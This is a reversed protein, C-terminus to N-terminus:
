KGLGREIFDEMEQILEPNKCARKWDDLVREFFEDPADEGWDKLQSTSEIGFQNIGKLFVL